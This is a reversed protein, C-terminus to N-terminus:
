RGTPIPPLDVAPRQAPPEVVRFHPTRCRDPMAPGYGSCAPPDLPKKPSERTLAAPFSTEPSILRVRAFRPRGRRTCSRAPKMTFDTRWVGPSSPPRISMARLGLRHGLGRQSNHGVLPRLVIAPPGAHPRHGARGAFRSSRLNGGIGRCVLHLLWEPFFRVAPPFRKGVLHVLPFLHPPLIEFRAPFLRHIGRPKPFQHFLPNVRRQFQGMALGM